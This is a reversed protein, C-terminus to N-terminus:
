NALIAFDPQLNANGVVISPRVVIRLQARLNQVGPVRAHPLEVQNGNITHYTNQSSLIFSCM